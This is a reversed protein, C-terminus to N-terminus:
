KDKWYYNGQEDQPCDELDRRNWFAPTGLYMYSTDDGNIPVKIRDYMSGEAELQDLRGLTTDDVEYLEGLIFDDDSRFAVPFGCSKLMFGQVKIKQIFNSTILLRNNWEGQKLTGYVIVKHTM